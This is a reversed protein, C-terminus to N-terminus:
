LPPLAAIVTIAVVAAVAIRITWVALPPRGPPTVGAQPAAAAQAADAEAFLARAADADEAPVQLWIGRASLTSPYQGGADDAVVVADIGNANLYTVALEALSRSAFSGVRTYEVM